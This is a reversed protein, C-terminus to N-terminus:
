KYSRDGSLVRYLERAVWRGGAGGMVPLVDPQSGLGAAGGTRLWVDALPTGIAVLAPIVWSIQLNVNFPANLKISILSPVGAGPKAPRPFFSEIILLIASYIFFM